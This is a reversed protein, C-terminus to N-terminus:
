KSFSYSQIHRSPDLCDSFPVVYEEGHPASSKSPEHHTFVRDDHVKRVRVSRKNVAVIVGLWNDSVQNFVLIDAGVKPKGPTPKM